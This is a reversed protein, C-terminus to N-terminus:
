TAKRNRIIDNVSEVIQSTNAVFAEYKDAEAIRMAVLYPVLKKNILELIPKRLSTANEQSKKQSLAQDYQSRIAVFEDQSTRLLTIAESVGTLATISPQVESDSFDTLLSEILLSEESYSAETIKVGYKKFITALKQAHTKLTQIPISEYGSLLKGLARVAEDRKSDAQELNSSVNDRKIAEKLANAKKELEEFTAKLFKEDQLEPTKKYIEVLRFATDGIEAVRAKERLKEM